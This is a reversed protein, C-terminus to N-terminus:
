IKDNGTSINRQYAIFEGSLGSLLTVDMACIVQRLERYLHNSLNKKNKDKKTMRILHEINKNEILNVRM